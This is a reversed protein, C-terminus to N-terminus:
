LLGQPESQINHLSGAGTQLCVATLLCVPMPKVLTFAVAAHSRSCNQQASIFLQAKSCSPWIGIVDTLYSCSLQAQRSLASSHQSLFAPGACLTDCCTLQYVHSDVEIQTVVAVNNNLLEPTAICCAPERPWSVIFSRRGSRQPNRVAAATHPNAVTSSQLSTVERCCIVLGACARGSSLAQPTQWRRHGSLGEPTAARRQRLPFTKYPTAQM